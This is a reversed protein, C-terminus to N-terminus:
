GNLNKFFKLSKSFMIKSESSFSYIIKNGDRKFKLINSDRLIKLHKSIYPQPLDIDNNFECVCVGDYNKDSYSKSKKILISIIKLRTPNSLIKFLMSLDNFNNKMRAVGKIQVQEVDM